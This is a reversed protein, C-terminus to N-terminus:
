RPYPRGTFGHWLTEFGNRTFQFNPNAWLTFGYAVLLLVALGGVIYLSIILGRRNVPVYYWLLM